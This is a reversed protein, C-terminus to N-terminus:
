VNWRVKPSTSLLPSNRYKLVTATPLPNRPPPRFSLQQSLPRQMCRRAGFSDLPLPAFGSFLRFSPRGRVVPLPFTKRGATSGGIRCAVGHGKKESITQRGHLTEQNKGDDQQADAKRGALARLLRVNPRHFPLVLLRLHPGRLHLCRLTEHLGM